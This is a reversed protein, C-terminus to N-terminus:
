RCKKRIIVIGATVVSLACVLLVIWVATTDGTKVPTIKSSVDDDKGNGSNNSNNDKDEERDTKVVLNKKTEKLEEEATKVEEETAEMDAFVAKAYDLASIFAEATEKTYKSVDVKEAERILEELGDKNPILRLQFIANQLAAYAADVEEQSADPNTLVERADALVETFFGATVPTYQEITDEYKKSKDILKQLKTKDVSIKELGDMAAQLTDRAADIEEQLANTDALVADAQALADTLVKWTEKTYLKPNMGRAADALIKLSESNGAFGLMHVKALLKDYAADVETQTAEAKENVGVAEALAKEFAEKVVPVLYQYEENEQQSRAYDILATLDNKEVPKESVIVNIAPNVSSPNGISDPLDLEGTITYSGATNGNYDAENWSVDATVWADNSLKINITKPLTLKDFTTGFDVTVSEFSEVETVTLETPEKAVEYLEVQNLRAMGNEWEWGTEPLFMPFSMYIRFYRGTVPTNLTKDTIHTTTSHDTDILNSDITEWEGAANKVQLEYNGKSDDQNNNREGGHILKWRDITYEQGLDIELWRNNVDKWSENKSVWGEYKSTWTGSIARDATFNDHHSNATATSNENVNKAAVNRGERNGPIVTVKCSATLDTGVLAATITATGEKLGVVTGDRGALATEMDSTTWTIEPNEVNTVVTLKGTEGAQVQLESQEISFKPIVKGDTKLEYDAGAETAFTYVTGLSNETTTTEIKIGDKYVEMGQDKWPNLVSCEKGKNSHINAYTVVGNADQDADVLFANEAAMRRFSAPQDEYWNAFINIFGENSQLLTDQVVALAGVNGLDGVTNNGRMGFWDSPTMDIRGAILQDMIEHVDYGLRTATVLRRHNGKSDRNKTETLYNIYKEKEEEPMSMGVADFYYGSQSTVPNGDFTPGPKSQTRGEVDCIMEKGNYIFTPVSSMEDIIKQWTPIRDEDVGKEQAALITNELMYKCADVDLIPNRGKQGEHTAGYVVYKGDEYTVYNEWFTAVDKMMPYIQDLLAEDQTYKWMKIVPMMVSSADAPSNWYDKWTNHQETSAGWPGIHTPFLAANQIGETFEPRGTGGIVRNLDTVSAARRRAEPWYQKLVNLYNQIGETRNAQVLPHVQRQFDTNTTFDGQWNPNDVATWPFLGAAIGGNNESSTSTACGTQYLMGYYMREIKEDPIDIYSKLWYDKWYDRHAQESAELVDNTTRTSLKEKAKAKAAELTNEEGEKKGGEIASVLTVTQGPQLEFRTANKGEEVEVTTKEIEDIIKSAMAINVEWGEWTGDGSPRDSKAESIGQKAAVMVDNDTESSKNSNATWVAVEMPVVAETKNTIETVIINEKASLWTNTTFGDTSQATVEANKMDQEYRFEQSDAVSVKPNRYLEFEQIRVANNDDQTPKTVLLRMYRATISKELNRDTTKDTNGTVVDADTWHADNAGDPETENSYQLKFDCTNYKSTEKHGAHKVVWRGIEQEEGLDVVAWYTSSNSNNKLTSCWKTDINGDVMKSGAESDNVQNCVAVNKNLAINEDTSEATGITIGGFTGYSHGTAYSNGDKWMNTHSIYLNQTKQDGAMFAYVTGNGMLPGDPNHRTNWPSGLKTDKTYVGPYSDLIASVTEWEKEATDAAKVTQPKAAFGAAFTTAALCFAMVTSIVKKRKM